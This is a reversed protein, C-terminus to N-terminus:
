LNWLWNYWCSGKVDFWVILYFNLLYVICKVVKLFNLRIFRLVELLIFLLWGFFRFVKFKMKRCVKVSVWILFYNMFKRINWDEDIKGVIIIVFFIRLFFLRYWCKEGM